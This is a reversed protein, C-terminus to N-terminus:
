YAAILKRPIAENLGYVEFTDLVKSLITPLILAIPLYGHVLSAMADQMLSSMNALSICQQNVDNVLRRYQITLDQLSAAINLTNRHQDQTHRAACEGKEVYDKIEELVGRITENLMEVNEQLSRKLAPLKRREVDAPM